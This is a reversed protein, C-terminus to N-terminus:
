LAALRDRVVESEPSDTAEYLSLAASMRERAKEPEKRAAAVIGLELHVRALGSRDGLQNYILLAQEFRRVARPDGQLREIAGLEIETWAAGRVNGINQYIRLATTAEQRAVELAGTQRHLTALEVQADAINRESGIETFVRLAEGLLREAGPHDGTMRLVIGLERQAWAHGSRDNVREFIDRASIFRESAQEHKGTQRDVTGLEIIIWAQNRISGIETFMALAQGLNARAAQHDGLLRNLMGLAGESDAIGRLNGTQKFLRLAQAASNRADTYRTLHHNVYGLELHCAAQGLLDGRTTFITLATRIHEEAPACSCLARELVGIGLCSVAKGLDDGTTLVIQLASENLEIAQPISRRIRMFYALGSTLRWTGPWGVNIALRTVARLDEFYSGLWAFAAFEDRAGVTETTPHQGADTMALANIRTNVEGLTDATLEFLRGRANARAVDTDHAYSYELAVSRVLDHLAYGHPDPKGLLGHNHLAGLAADADGFSIDALAGVTAATAHPGPYLAVRRFVLQEIPTLSKISAKFAATPDGSSGHEPIPIHMSEDPKSILQDAVHRVSLPLRYVMALSRIVSYDVMRSARRAIDTIMAQAEDTSLGSLEIHVDPDIGPITQRSAIIVACDSSNPVLPLAQAADAIDDLVILLRRGNTEARWRLTLQDTNFSRHSSDPSIAVLADTLVDRADLRSAEGSHSRFGLFLQADPYRGALQHAAQTALATKGSGPAGTIMYIIPRRGSGVPLDFRKSFRHLESERGVFVAIRTPLTCIPRPANSRRADDEPSAQRRSSTVVAGGAALSVLAVLAAFLWWNWTSTILNTVAGVAVGLVPGSALIVRERSAPGALDWHGSLRRM